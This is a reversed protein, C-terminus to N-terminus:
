YQRQISLFCRFAISCCHDAQDEIGKSFVIISKENKGIKWIKLPYKFFKRYSYAATRM